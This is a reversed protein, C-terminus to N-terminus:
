NVGYPVQRMFDRCRKEVEARSTDNTIYQKKGAIKAYCSWLDDEKEVILNTGHGVHIIRKQERSYQPIGINEWVTGEETRQKLMWGKIKPM